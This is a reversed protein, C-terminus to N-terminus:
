FFAYTVVKYLQRDKKSLFVWSQRKQKMCQSMKPTYRGPGPAIRWDTPPRAFMNSSDFPYLSEKKRKISHTNKLDYQAPSPDNPNHYCLSIDTLMNRSTPKKQFRNARLFLGCRKKDRNNLLYDIDSPKIYFYDPAKQMAPSFHNKITTGDRPGTFCDYPGRSSTRKRLIDAMNKGDNYTYLNPPLHYPKEQPKFRHAIGDFEFTPLLSFCKNRPEFTTTLKRHYTNPPPADQGVYNKSFRSGSGFGVNNLVSGSMKESLNVDHTGPGRMSKDFEREYLIHSNRFGLFKSFEEVELKNAWSMGRKSKCAANKPEYSGPGVKTIQKKMSGSVDLEPHFGVRAFRKTAVGFPAYTKFSKESM